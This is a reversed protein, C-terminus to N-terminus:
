NLNLPSRSSSTSRVKKRKKRCSQCAGSKRVQNIREKELKSFCRRRRPSKEILIKDPSTKGASQSIDTSSPTLAFWGFPSDRSDHVPPVRVQAEKERESPDELTLNGALVSSTLDHSKERDDPERWYYKQGAAQFATVVRCFLLAKHWRGRTYSVKGMFRRNWDRLRHLILLMYRPPELRFSLHMGLWQVIIKVSQHSLSKGWFCMGSLVQGPVRSLSQARSSVGGIPTPACSVGSM